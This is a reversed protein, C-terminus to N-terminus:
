RTIHTVNLTVDCRKDLNLIFFLFIFGFIFSLFFLFIFFFLIFGLGDKIVRISSV